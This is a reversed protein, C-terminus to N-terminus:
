KGLMGARLDEDGTFTDGELLWVAFLINKFKPNTIKDIVKDNISVSLGDGPLYVYTWVDNKKADTTLAKFKDIDAKMADFDAGAAYKFGGEWVELIKEKPGNRKWTMTIAMPEDAGIIKQSDSSKAKLYLSGVYVKFGWKKRIGSGNLILEGQGSDLTDPITLGGIDLATASTATLLLILTVIRLKKLM